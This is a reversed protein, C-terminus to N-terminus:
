YEHTILEKYRGELDKTFEKTNFLNNKLKNEILKNRVQFLLKPNLALNIALREYCEITEAILEELNLSKLFSACVRSVFSKGVKTIIPLGMWLADTAVTHSTYPFTDLFLDPYQFWSLYDNLSSYKTFILRDDNLGSTKAEKILNMRTDDNKVILWLVSNEVQKLIRIWSSFMEPNIKYSNNFCCFIFADNPIGLKELSSHNKIAEGIKLVQHSNIFYSNTLYIIKESYFKQNEKPIVVEDAILYDYYSAGTTGPYGLFNIQVPAIRYAFIGIRMDTSLGNLDIAIDLALTRCFQAIEIDSKETLDILRDLDKEISKHVGDKKPSNFTIGILEFKDKDHCKFLGSILYTLSSQNFTSAVYALRIKKNKPHKPIPGLSNNEPYVRSALNKATKLQLEHSDLTLLPTFPNRIIEGENIKSELKSLNEEYDSWDCILLKEYIKQSLLHYLDEDIKEYDHIALRHENIKSYATARYFYAQDHNPNLKIVESFDSIADPFLHVESKTYGRNLYANLFDPQLQIARDYNKISEQYRKLANLVIGRNYFLEGSQDNIKEANDFIKLAEDYSQRQGLLTGLLLQVNFNNPENELFKQYCAEAQNLDGNKHFGYGEELLSKNTADM